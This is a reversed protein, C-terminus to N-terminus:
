LMRALFIDVKNLLPKNNDEFVKAYKLERPNILVCNVDLDNPRQSFPFRIFDICIGENNAGILKGLSSWVLNMKEPGHHRCTDSPHASPIRPGPPSVTAQPMHCRHCINQFSVKVSSYLVPRWELPGAFVDTGEIFCWRGSSMEYCRPKVHKDLSLTTNHQRTEIFTPLLLPVEWNVWDCNQLQWLRWAWTAKHIKMPSWEAGLDM